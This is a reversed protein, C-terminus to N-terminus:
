KRVSTRKKRARYGLVLVGFGTLAITSPEPVAVATSNLTFAANYTPSPSGGVIDTGVRLWDPSIGPGRIEAQFDPSFPTGPPVIPSSTSLWYFTGSTLTMMVSFFYHDPALTLANGFLFDIQYENGRVAGEGGTRQNPSANVGTNVSNSATFSPSLLTTVYSFDTVSNFTQFAADSPSNVRSPVAGSPPNQSELPFVRFFSISINQIDFPSNLLGTFSGGTIRASQSLVFDDATRVIPGGVTQSSRMAMRGDPSGTSFTQQATLQSVGLLMAFTTLGIMRPFMLAGHAPTLTPAAYAAIRTSNSIPSVFPFPLSVCCHTGSGATAYSHAYM